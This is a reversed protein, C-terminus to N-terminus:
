DVNWFRKKKEKFFEYCFHETLNLQDFKMITEVNWESGSRLWIYFSSDSLNHKYLLIFQPLFQWFIPLSKPSLFFSVCFHIGVILFHFCISLVIQYILGFGPFPTLTMYYMEYIRRDININNKRSCNYVSSIIVLFWQSSFSYVYFNLYLLNFYGQQINIYIYLFALSFFFLNVDRLM